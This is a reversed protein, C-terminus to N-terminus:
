EATEGATRSPGRKARRLAALVSDVLEDDMDANRFSMAPNVDVAWLDGEAEVLDVGLAQSDTLALLRRAKEATEPDPTSRGLSEKEGQLKSTTQVVRVHVRDGTDVAYYKHDVPTAPLLPQYVAGEGNREPATTDHWDGLSKAVYDGEPPTASSEPVRFGVHALARYGVFRLGLLCTRYGNWTALGEREALALARFSEPDVKKNALLSLGSLDAASLARGPEFFTVSVGREGLRDAVRSFVTHGADCIVGVRREGAGDSYREWM